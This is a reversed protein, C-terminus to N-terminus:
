VSCRVVPPAHLSLHSAWDTVHVSGLVMGKVADLETALASLCVCLQVLGQRVHRSINACVM